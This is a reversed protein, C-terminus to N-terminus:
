NKKLASHLALASAPIKGDKCQHEADFELVVLILLAVMFPLQGIGGALAYSTVKSMGFQAGGVVLATTLTGTVIFLILFLKARKAALLNHCLVFISEEKNIARKAKFIVNTLLAISLLPMLTIPLMSTKLLSLALVFVFVHVVIFDFLLMSHLSKARSVEAETVQHEM